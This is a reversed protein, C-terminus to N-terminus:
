GPLVPDELPHLKLSLIHLIEAGGALGGVEGPELVAQINTDAGRLEVLEVVGPLLCDHTGRVGAMYVPKGYWTTFNSVEVVGPPHVVM